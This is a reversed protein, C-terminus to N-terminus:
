LLLATNIVNQAHTMNDDTAKRGGVINRMFMVSCLIHMKIKKCSKDSVNKMRLIRCSTILFIYKDEHLTGIIKTM